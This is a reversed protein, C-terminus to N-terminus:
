SEGQFRQGPGSEGRVGIVQNWSERFGRVQGRSGGFEGVQGLEEESGGGQELKGQAELTARVGGAGNWGSRVHLM